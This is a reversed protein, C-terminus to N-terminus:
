TQWWREIEAELAGPAAYRQEVAAIFTRTEDETPVLAPLEVAYDYV